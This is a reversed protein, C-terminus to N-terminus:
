EEISQRRHVVVTEDLCEFITDVKEKKMKPTIMSVVPVLILGAIMAIGSFCGCVERMRGIGGGFSASIKLATETDMGYLDAFAAFVSQSCNYGSKFYEVAKEIRKEM